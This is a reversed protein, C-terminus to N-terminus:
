IIKENKAKKKDFYEQNSNHKCMPLSKNYIPAHKFIKLAEVELLIDKDCEFFSFSDFKKYNGGKGYKGKRHSIIRFGISKSSGIYVIKNNKFLYYIGKKYNLSSVDDNKKYIKM